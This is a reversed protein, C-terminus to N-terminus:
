KNRSKKIGSKRITGKRKENFINTLSNLKKISIYKENIQKVVFDYAEVRYIFVNNNGDLFYIIKDLEYKYKQAEEWNNEKDVLKQINEKNIIELKKIEEKLSDNTDFLVKNCKIGLDIEKKVFPLNLILKKFYNIIM